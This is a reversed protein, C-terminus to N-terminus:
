PDFLQLTWGRLAERRSQIQAELVRIWGCQAPVEACEPGTDAVSM